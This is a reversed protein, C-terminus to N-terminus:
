VGAGPLLPGSPSGASDPLDVKLGFPRVLANRLQLLAKVWSPATAFVLAVAEDLTYRRGAPLQALCADAYDIRPLSTAVLSAQPLPAVTVTVM